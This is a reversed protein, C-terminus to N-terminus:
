YVGPCQDDYPRSRSSHYCIPVIFVKRTSFPSRANLAIAPLREFGGGRTEQDHASNWKGGDFFDNAMSWGNPM